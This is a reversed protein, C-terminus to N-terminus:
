VTLYRKGRFTLKVNAKFMISVNAKLRTEKFLNLLSLSAQRYGFPLQAALTNLNAYYFIIHCFHTVKTVFISTGPIYSPTSQLFFIMLTVVQSSSVQQIDKM